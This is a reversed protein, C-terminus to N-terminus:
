IERFLGLDAFILGSLTADMKEIQIIKEWELKLFDESMLFNQIPFNEDNM